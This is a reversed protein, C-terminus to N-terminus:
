SGATPNMLRVIHTVDRTKDMKTSVITYTITFLGDGDYVVSLDKLQLDPYAGTNVLDVISGNRLNRMQVVGQSRGEADVPLSFYADQIRYDYSTFVFTVDGPLPIGAYDVLNEGDRIQRSYRLVDGMANNVIRALMASDSEFTAEGYIRTATDMSPGMGVVLFVLILLSALMEVLTMGAKNKLKKM